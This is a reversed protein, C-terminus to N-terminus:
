FIFQFVYFPCLCSIVGKSVRYHLRLCIEQLGVKCSVIRFRVNMGWFRVRVMCRLSVQRMSSRCLATWIGIELKQIVGGIESM